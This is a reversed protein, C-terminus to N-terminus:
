GAGRPHWREPAGILHRPGNRKRVARRWGLGVAFMAGFGSHPTKANVISV